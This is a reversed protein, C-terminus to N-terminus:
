ESGVLMSGFGWQITGLFVVVAQCNLAYRVTSSKFPAPPEGDDDMIFSGQSRTLLEGAAVGFVLVGLGATLAGFREFFPQSSASEVLYGGVFGVVLILFSIPLPHDLIFVAKRDPAYSM